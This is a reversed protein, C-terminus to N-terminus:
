GPGLRHQNARPRRDPPRPDGGGFCFERAALLRSPDRHATRLDHDPRGWGAGILAGRWGYEELAKAHSTLVDLSNHHGTTSDGRHGASVENPIYWLFEPTGSM